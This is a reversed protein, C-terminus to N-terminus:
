WLGPLDNLDTPAAVDDLLDARPAEGVVREGRRVARGLVEDGEGGDLVITEALLEDDDPLDLGARADELLGGQGVRSLAEIRGRRRSAKRSATRQPATADASTVRRLAGKRLPILDLVVLEVGDHARHLHRADVQEDGVVDAEALGDLGAEDRLLEHEPM